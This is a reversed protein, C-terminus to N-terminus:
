THVNTPRTDWRGVIGVRGKIDGKRVEQEETAERRRLFEKGQVCKKGKFGGKVALGGTPKGDKEGKPATVREKGRSKNLWQSADGAGFNKEDWMCDRALHGCGEVPMANCMGARRM